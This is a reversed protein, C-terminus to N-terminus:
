SDQNLISEAYSMVSDHMWEELTQGAAQAAEMCCKYAEADMEVVITEM